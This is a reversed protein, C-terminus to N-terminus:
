RIRPLLVGARLTDYFVFVGDLWEKMTQVHRECVRNIFDEPKALFENITRFQSELSTFSTNSHHKNFETRCNDFKCCVCKTM